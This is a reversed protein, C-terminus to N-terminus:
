FLDRRQHRHPLEGVVLAEDEGGALARHLLREERGVPVDPGAAETGDVDLLVVLQDVDLHAVLVAVDHEGGLVPHADAEVLAVHALHPAGGGAHLADLQLLAFRHYSSSTPDSYRSPPSTTAGVEEASSNSARPRKGSRAGGRM